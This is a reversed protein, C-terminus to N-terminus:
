ISYQRIKEELMALTINDMRSTWLKPNWIELHDQVGAILVEGELTLHAHERLMQPVLIRGQRDPVDSIAYAFFYRLLDREAWPVKERMRQSLAEFAAIPYLDLYEGIGKTIVVGSALPERFRAPLTLRGKADLNHVYNGVMLM